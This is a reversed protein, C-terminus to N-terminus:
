APALIQLGDAMVLRVYRLRDLDELPDADVAIIDARRGVELTGYDAASDSILAADRTAAQLARMPSLGYSTFEKIEDVMDGYQDTGTAFLVGPDLAAQFSARHIDLIREAIDSWAPPLGLEAGKRAINIMTSLTPM